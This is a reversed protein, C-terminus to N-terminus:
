LRMGDEKRLVPAVGLQELVALTDWMTRHEVIVGEELWAITVGAYGIQKGTPAIGHWPGAHKGQAAFAVMVTDGEAVIEEVAHVLDPFAALFAGVYRKVSEPRAFVEAAMDLKAQNWLEEYIRRVVRKNEELKSTM